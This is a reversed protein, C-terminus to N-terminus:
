VFLLACAQAAALFLALPLQARSSKEKQASTEMMNGMGGGEGEGGGGGFLMRAHARPPARLAGLALADCAAFGALCLWTTRAM